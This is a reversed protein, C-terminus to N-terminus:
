MPPSVPRVRALTASRLSRPRVPMWDIRVVVVSQQPGRALQHRRFRPHNPEAAAEAVGCPNQHVDAGLTQGALADVGLIQLTVTRRCGDARVSPRDLVTRSCSM